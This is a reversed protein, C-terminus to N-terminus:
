DDKGAAISNGIQLNELTFSPKTAGPPYETITDNGTNYVFLKGSGGIAIGTPNDLGTLKLIQPKPHAQGAPFSEIANISAVSVFVTPTGAVDVAASRASQAVYQTSPLSTSAGGACGSVAVICLLASLRASGIM